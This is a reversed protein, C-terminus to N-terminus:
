LYNYSLNLSISASQISPLFSTALTFISASTESGLPLPWTQEQKCNQFTSFLTPQSKRRWKMVTLNRQVTATSIHTDISLLIYLCLPVMHKFIRVPSAFPHSYPYSWHGQHEEAGCLSSVPQQILHLGTCREQILIREPIYWATNSSRPDECTM